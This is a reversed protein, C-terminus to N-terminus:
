NHILSLSAHLSEKENMVLDWVKSVFELDGVDYRNM